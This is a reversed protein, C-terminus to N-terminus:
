LPTFKKVRDKLADFVERGMASQEPLEIRRDRALVEDPGVGPNLRQIAQIWLAEAQLRADSPSAVWDSDIWGSHYTVLVGALRRLTYASDPLYYIRDSMQLQLPFAGSLVGERITSYPPITGERGEYHHTLARVDARFPASGSPTWAIELETNLGIGHWGIKSSGEGLQEAIDHTALQWAGTPSRYLLYSRMMEQHARPGGISAYVIKYVSAGDSRALLSASSRNGDGIHDGPHVVSAVHHQLMFQVGPDQFDMTDMSSANLFAWFLKGNQRLYYARNLHFSPESPQSATDIRLFLQAGDLDRWAISARYRTALEEPTAATDIFTLGPPANEPHAPQMQAGTPASIAASPPSVKQPDQDASSDASRSCGTLAFVGGTLFLISSSCWKM